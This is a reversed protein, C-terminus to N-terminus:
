CVGYYSQGDGGNAAAAREFKPATASGAGSFKSRLLHAESAILYGGTFPIWWSPGNDEYIREVCLWGILHRQHLNQSQLQFSLRWNLVVGLRCTGYGVRLHSNSRAGEPANGSKAAVGQDAAATIGVYIRAGTTSKHSALTMNNCVNHSTRFYLLLCTTVKGRQVSVQSSHLWFESAPSLSSGRPKCSICPDRSFRDALSRLNNTCPSKRKTGCM